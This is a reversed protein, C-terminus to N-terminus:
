IIRFYGNFNNGEQPKVLSDKNLSSTFNPFLDKNEKLWKVLFSEYFEAKQIYMGQVMSIENFEASESNDSSQKQVGKATIQYSTSIVAESAARWAIIPKIYGVLTQEDSTLTQNNYAALLYEYFYLGLIPRLWMESATLTFPVINEVKINPNTATIVKLYTEGIFYKM